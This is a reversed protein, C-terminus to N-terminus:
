RKRKSENLAVAAKVLAKLARTDVKDGERFDIARRVNGELSSNFLGKPDPLSAGKAFTLKVVQKYTEGTCIIGDHEFTPVGRWKWEEVVDPDAAHIVGRLKALMAGRWDDLEEIRQDILDTPTERKPM